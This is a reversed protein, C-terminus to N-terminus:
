LLGGVGGLAAGLLGGLLDDAAGAAVGELVTTAVGPALEHRVSVLLWPGAQDASTTEDIRVVDGPRRAPQLWCTGRMRITAAARRSAAGRAALDVDTRTRLVADPSWSRSADPDDAGTVADTSPVWADPALAAGSGGAGVPAFDHGPQHASTTFSTFERDLRMAATPLGVPWAVVTLRGDADVAAVADSRRAIAAVHEAATRRPDAVYAATQTLAAILGTDASALDALRGVVQVGTLGNYTEAPRAAALAAGADTIVVVAGTTARELHDVVGTVVVAGGDGGDLEVSARSGAAAPVDVGAAIAVEVRNVGPLLTLEAAVSRVQVTYRLDDLTVTASTTLTM